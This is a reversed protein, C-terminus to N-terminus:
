TGVKEKTGDWIFEGDPGVPFHANCRCCFTASYFSPDRAYTESLKLGMTTVGGCKLHQYKQRVPRVFGKAREEDSLVIYDDHQGTRQRAQKERLEDVPTGHLTTIASRDVPPTAKESFIADWNARYEASAPKTRINDAM